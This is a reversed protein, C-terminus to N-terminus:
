NDAVKINATLNLNEMASASETEQEGSEQEAGVFVIVGEESLATAGRTIKYFFKSGEEVQINARVRPNNMGGSIDMNSSIILRNEEGPINSQSGQYALFQESTLKLRTQINKFDAFAIDGNIALPNGDADEITFNPFRIRDGEFAIHQNNLRFSTQAPVIFVSAKDFALNGNLKPAKISGTIRISANMNGSSNSILTNIFPQMSAIEFDKATFLLDMPINEKLGYVGKVNFWTKERGFSVDVKAIDSNDTNSAKIQIDGFQQQASVIHNVELNINFLPTRKNFLNFVTAKGNIKGKIAASDGRLIESLFSLNLNKLELSLADRNDPENFLSISKDDKTFTLNRLNIGNQTFTILNDPKTEWEQYNLFLPTIVKINKAPNQPEMSAGLDFWKNGDANAFSVRSLLLGNNLNSEIKIDTLSQSSNQVNGINVNVQFSSDRGEALFNIDNAQIDNYIFEEINFNASLQKDHFVAKIQANESIEIKSKTLENLMSIDKFKVSADFYGNEKSTSDTATFYNSFYNKLVRPIEQLALNGAYSIDAFVTEFNANVTDGAVKYLIKNNSAINKSPLVLTITSTDSSILLNRTGASVFHAKMNAAIGLTDTTLGLTKANVYPINASLNLDTEQGIKGNVKIDTKLMPDNTQLSANVVNNAVSGNIFLDRYPYNNYELLAINAELKTNM